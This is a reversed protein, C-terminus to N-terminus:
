MTLKSISALAGQVPDQLKHWHDDISQREAAALSALPRNGFGPVLWIAPIWFGPQRDTLTGDVSSALMGPESEASWVGVLRGHNAIAVAERWWIERESGDLSDALKLLLEARDRDSAADGAFRRTRTPEWSVGLGPILLGGDSAITLSSRDAAQLQRSLSVAKDSAIAEFASGQEDPAILQVDPPVADVIALAGILRQFEAIKAPNSTAAVVKM